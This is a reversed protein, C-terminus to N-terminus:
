NTEIIIIYNKVFKNTKTHNIFLNNHKQKSTILLPKM